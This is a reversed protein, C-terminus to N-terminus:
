LCRLIDSTSAAPAEDNSAHDTEEKAHQEADCEYSCDDTDRQCNAPGAERDVAPNLVSLPDHLLEAFGHTNAYHLSHLWWWRGGDKVRVHLLIVAAM